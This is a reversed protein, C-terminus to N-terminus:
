RRQGILYIVRDSTRAFSRAFLNAALRRDTTALRDRTQLMFHAVLAIVMAALM